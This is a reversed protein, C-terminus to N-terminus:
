RELWVESAIKEFKEIEEVTLHQSLLGILETILESQRAIVRKQYDVIELFCTSSM